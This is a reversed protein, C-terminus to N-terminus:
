ESIGSNSSRSKKNNGKTRKKSKSSKEEASSSCCAAKEGTSSGSCSAKDQSSGNTNKSCAAKEEASCTKASGDASKSCCGKDGEAKKSCCSASMEGSSAVKDGEAKSSCCSAKKEGSCAVKEGEAKKACCSQQTKTKDTSSAVTATLEKAPPAPISAETKVGKKVKVPADSQASVTFAFMVLAGLLLINKMISYNLKKLVPLYVVEGRLALYKIKM